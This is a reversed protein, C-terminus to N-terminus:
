KTPQKQMQSDAQRHILKWGDSERRFVMTVRYDRTSEETQGPARFRLHEFQVVYGLNGSENKVLRETRHLGQSFQTGVWDLRKSIQEWGQEIMGGLGGSLTTDDGHSWLAKFAAPRGNQLEVQAADVATLIAAFEASVKATSRDTVEALVRGSCLLGCIVFCVTASILRNWSM